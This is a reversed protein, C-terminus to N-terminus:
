NCFHNILLNFLTGEKVSQIYVPNDGSVKMGYGSDDKYVVVTAVHALESTAIDGTQPTGGGNTENAGGGASGGVRRLGPTGNMGDIHM